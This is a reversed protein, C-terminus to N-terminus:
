PWRIEGSAIKTSRDKIWAVHNAQGGVVDEVVIGALEPAALNLTAAGSWCNGVVVDRMDSAFVDRVSIGRDPDPLIRETYFRVFAPGIGLPAEREMSVSLDFAPTGHQVVRGTLRDGRRIGHVPHPLSVAISGYRQPWGYMERGVAIEADSDCWLYPDFFGPTGAHSAAVGIVAEHMQAREPHAAVFDWGLGLDCQLWHASFRILPEDVPELEPPLLAAVCEQTTRAIVTLSRGAFQWPPPGYFANGAGPNLPAAIGHRRDETM